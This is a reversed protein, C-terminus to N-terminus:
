RVGALARVLGATEAPTGGPQLGHFSAGALARALRVLCDGAPRGGADYIVVHQLLRPLAEAVALARIGPSPPFVREGASPRAAGRMLVVIGKDQLVRGEVELEHDLLEREYEVEGLHGVARVDCVPLGKAVLAPLVEGDWRSVWAFRGPEGPGPAPVAGVLVVRAAGVLYSPAPPASGGPALTKLSDGRGLGLWPACGGSGGRITAARPFAHLLCRDPDLLLLDEAVVRFDPSLEGALTSKGAGSSGVLLVLGGNPDLLANGHLHLLHPLRRALERAILLGTLPASLEPSSTRIGSCLGSLRLGSADWQLSVVPSTTDAPPFNGYLLRCAQVLPPPGAVEIVLGAVQFRLADAGSLKM